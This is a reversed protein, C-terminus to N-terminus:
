PDSERRPWRNKSNVSNGDFESEGYKSSLRALLIVRLLKVVLSHLLIVFGFFAAM